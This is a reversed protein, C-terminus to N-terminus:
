DEVDRCREDLQRAILDIQHDSLVPPHNGIVALAVNKANIVIVEGNAKAEVWWGPIALIPKVPTEIGTRQYIFKQLWDAEALTQDLSKREEGWPWILKTGDYSMVHEKMGPRALGKRRTKTEILSVGSPGVAVHDLNFDTAAGEAPVDHFIFYGRPVLPTLHEAVEREGLYGLRDDRYRKLSRLAWRVAFAVTVIFALAAVSLVVGVWLGSAQAPMWLLFCKLIATAVAPPCLAVLFFKLIFNEDFKAMRRRLTEGPGRSLKFLVPTRGGIRKIKWAFLGFVTAPFLFMYSFASLNIWNASIM